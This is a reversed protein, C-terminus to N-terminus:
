EVDNEEVRNKKLIVMLHFIWNRIYDSFESESGMLENCSYKTHLQDTKLYLNHIKELDIVSLDKKKEYIVAWKTIQSLVNKYEDFSEKYTEFNLVYNIYGMINVFTEIIDGHTAFKDENKIM